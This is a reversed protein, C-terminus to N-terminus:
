DLAPATAFDDTTRAARVASAASAAVGIAARRSAAKEKNEQREMEGDRM